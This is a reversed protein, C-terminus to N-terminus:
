YYTFRYPPGPEEATAESRDFFALPESTDELSQVLRYFVFM